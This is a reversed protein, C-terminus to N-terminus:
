KFEWEGAPLDVDARWVNGESWEMPLANDLNWEGLNPHGGIVKVSQGFPVEKQVTIHVSTVQQASAVTM